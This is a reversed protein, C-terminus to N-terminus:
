AAQFIDFTNIISYLSKEAEYYSCGYTSKYKETYVYSLLHECLKIDSLEIIPSIGTFSSSMDIGYRDLKELYQILYHVDILLIVLEAIETCSLLESPKKSSLEYYANCEKSLINKDEKNINAFVGTTLALRHYRLIRSKLDGEDNDIINKIIAKTAKETKM